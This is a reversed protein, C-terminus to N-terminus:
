LEHKNSLRIIKSISDNVQAGKNKWYIIKKHDLFRNDKRIPDYFGITEIFKGNRPSRSNAVIVRYFPKKKRGYRALRIKLM